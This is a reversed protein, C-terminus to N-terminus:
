GSVGAEELLPVRRPKQIEEVYSLSKMINYGKAEAQLVANHQLALRVFNNLLGFTGEFEVGQSKFLALHEAYDLIVDYLERGVQLFDAGAVPVPMNRNLDLTLSYVNDPVPTLALLNRGLIAIDTPQGQVNQWSPQLTDFDELASTLVSAEMIYAQQILPTLTAWRVGEAWRQECYKARDPDYAPGDKSLLEALAGWKLVWAYDDPINLLSTPSTEDMDAPANVTILDVTGGDGSIPLVQLSVLPTLYVSYTEPTSFSLNWDPRLTAADEEDNRFLNSYNGSLDLWAARRVTMISDSLSIRGSGPPAGYPVQSRSQHLGTELLFQNRRREMARVINDLTYQETMAPTQLAFNTTPPEMLHYQIDNILSQVTVSYGVFAPPNAAGAGTGGTFANPNASSTLDYFPLGAQTAFVARTKHLQSISNFTRLSDVIYRGLEDDLWHVNTPDGLRKALDAKATTFNKWTYTAM